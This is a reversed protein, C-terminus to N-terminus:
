FSLSVGWYLGALSGQWEFEDAGDGDNLDLILMHYGIRLGLEPIPRYVFGVDVSFSWSTRDGTTFGGFLTEADISFTRAFDLDGKLGVLPEAFLEDADASTAAGPIMALPDVRVDFDVHQFRVGGVVDLGGEVRPNGDDNLDSTRHLLRYAATIDFSQFSLDSEIRDGPAIPAGGIQGFSTATVGQDNAWFGLGSFTFRWKRRAATIRGIPAIRASDLNIDDLEFQDGRTTSSPLRLDGAPALFGMAPEIRITWEPGTYERPTELSADAAAEEEQAWSTGALCTLTLVLSLTRRAIPPM